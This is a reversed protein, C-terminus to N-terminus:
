GPYHTHIDDLRPDAMTPDRGEVEVNGHEDVVRTQKPYSEYPYKVGTTYENAFKARLAELKRHFDQWTTMNAKDGVAECRYAAFRYKQIRSNLAAMVTQRQEWTFVFPKPMTSLKDALEAAKEQFQPREDKFQPIITSRDSAYRSLANYLLLQEDSTLNLEIGGAPITAPQQPYPPSYDLPPETM